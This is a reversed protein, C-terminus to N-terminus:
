KMVTYANHCFSYCGRVWNTQQEGYYLFITTVKVAGTGDHNATCKPLKALFLRQNLSTGKVAMIFIETANASNAVTLFWLKYLKYTTCILTKWKRGFGKVDAPAAQRDLPIRFRWEMCFEFGSHITSLIFRRRKLFNMPFLFRYENHGKSKTKM